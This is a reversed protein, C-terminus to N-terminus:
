LWTGSPAGGIDYVQGQVEVKLAHADMDFFVRAYVGPQSTTIVIGSGAQCSLCGAAFPVAAAEGSVSQPMLRRGDMDGLAPM